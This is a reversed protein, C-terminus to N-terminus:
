AASASHDDAASAALRETVTYAAALALVVLLGIFYVVGVVDFLHAKHKGMARALV